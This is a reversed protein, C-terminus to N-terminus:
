GIIEKIIDLMNHPFTMMHRTALSELDKQTLPTTMELPLESDMQYLPAPNILKVKDYTPLAINWMQPPSIALELVTELEIRPPSIDIFM